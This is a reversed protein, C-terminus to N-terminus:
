VNSDSRKHLNRSRGEDIVSSLDSALGPICQRLTPWDWGFPDGASWDRVRQHLREALRILQKDGLDALTTPRPRNM